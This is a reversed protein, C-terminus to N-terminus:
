IKFAGWDFDGFRANARVNLKGSVLDVFVLPSFISSLLKKFYWFMNKSDRAVTFFMQRLLCFIMKLLKIGFSVHRECCACMGTVIVETKIM